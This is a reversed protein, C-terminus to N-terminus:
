AQVEVAPVPQAEPLCGTLQERRMMQGMAVCIKREGEFPDRAHAVLMNDLMVMDGKQWSFRVACDEYAEGIVQMVADEIASGDGYYVNRPLHGPGFLSILNSRVEPELCATHHLQVQNFFSLEGTEPHAVIAPCHQAIRLNDAGLWEWRMGSALCQREVEERQETKFFDQWRM